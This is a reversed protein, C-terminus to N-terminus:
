GPTASLNRPAGRTSAPPLDWLGATHGPVHDRRITLWHQRWGQPQLVVATLGLQLRSDRLASSFAPRRAPAGPTQPRKWQVAYCCHCFYCCRWVATWALRRSAQGAEQLPGHGGAFGPQCEMPFPMAPRCVLADRRWNLIVGAVRGVFILADLLTSVPPPAQCSFAAPPSLRRERTAVPRASSSSALAPARRGRLRDRPGTRLGSGDRRAGLGDGGLARRRVNARVCRGAAGPFRGHLVPLAMCSCAYPPASPPLPLGFRWAHKRRGARRQAVPAM